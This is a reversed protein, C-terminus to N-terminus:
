KLFYTRNKNEGNSKLIGLSVFKNLYRRTTQSAEGILKSAQIGIQLSLQKGFGHWEAMGM